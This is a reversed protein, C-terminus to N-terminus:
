APDTLLALRTVAVEDLPTPTTRNLLLVGMGELERDAAAMAEVDTPAYTVGERSSIRYCWPQWIRARALYAATDAEYGDRDFGGGEYDSEYEYAEPEHLATSPFMVVVDGGSSKLRWMGLHVSFKRAESEAKVWPGVVRVKSTRVAWLAEPDKLVADILNAREESTM